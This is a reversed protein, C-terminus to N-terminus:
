KVCKRSGEKAGTRPQYWASERITKLYKGTNGAVPNAPDKYSM